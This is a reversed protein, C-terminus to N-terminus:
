QTVILNRELERVALVTTEFGKSVSIESNPCVGGEQLM